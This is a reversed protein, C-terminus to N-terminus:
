LLADGSGAIIIEQELERASRAIKREKMKKQKTKWYLPNFEPGQAQVAPATASLYIGPGRLFKEIKIETYVHLTFNLEEIEFLVAYNMYMNLCSSSYLQVYM